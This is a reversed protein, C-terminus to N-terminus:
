KCPYKDLNLKLDAEVKTKNEGAIEKLEGDKWMRADASLDYRAMVLYLVAFVGQLILCTWAFKSMNRDHNTSSPKSEFSNKTTAITVTTTRLMSEEEEENNGKQDAM